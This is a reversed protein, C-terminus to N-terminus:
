LPYVNWAERLQWRRGVRGIVGAITWGIPCQHSLPEPLPLPGRKRGDMGALWIRGPEARTIQFHDELREAVEGWDQAEAFAQLAVNLADAKPLDRAAAAGQETALEMTAADAYGKAALWAALKKTVTGATRLLAPGAVVKRDMFYGLFEGVNPLIYEPGFIECFAQHAEGPAHFGRDFRKADLESLTLYAYGNLSHQLLEVVDQYQAFTKPSLRQRQEDLFEALVGAITPSRM